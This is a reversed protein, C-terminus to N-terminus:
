VVAPLVRCAENIQWQVMVDHNALHNRLAVLHEKRIVGKPVITVSELYERSYFVLEGCTIFSDHDLLGEYDALAM